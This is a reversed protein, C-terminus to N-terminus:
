KLLSWQDRSLSLLILFWHWADNLISIFCFIYQRTHRFVVVDVDKVVFWSSTSKRENLSLRSATNFVFWDDCSFVSRFFKVYFDCFGRLSTERCCSYFIFTQWIFWFCFCKMCFKCKWKWRRCCCFSWRCFRSLLM